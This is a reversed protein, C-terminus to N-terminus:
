VWYIIRHRFKTFMYLAIAWGLLTISISVGWNLASPAHGLLPERIISLFHYLPNGDVILPKLHGVQEPPWFVPTILMMIQLFSNILPQVDRFRACLIGFVLGVWVGNIAVILVGPIVYLTNLNLDVSFIILVFVCVLLNHGFVILNRWVCQLAYVSKPFAFQKLVGQNALFVSCGETMLSSMFLWTTVGTSLFPLFTALDTGWLNSFVFGVAVIFVALNLASWIPGLVTRAYRRRIEHWGLRAWLEWQLLGLYIDRLAKGFM